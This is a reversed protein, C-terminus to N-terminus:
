FKRGVGSCMGCGSTGGLCLEMEALPILPRWNLNFKVEMRISARGRGRWVGGRMWSIVPRRM